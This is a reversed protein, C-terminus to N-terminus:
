KMVLIVYQNTGLSRKEELSFFSYVSETQRMARSHLDASSDASGETHWKM